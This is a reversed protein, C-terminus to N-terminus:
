ENTNEKKLEDFYKKVSERIKYTDGHEANALWSQLSKETTGKEVEGSLEKQYLKRM